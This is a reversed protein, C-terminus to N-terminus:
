KVPFDFYTDPYPEDRLTFHWWEAEYPAFGAFLMHMRLLMRNARADDSIDRSAAHSVPGFFDWNSGMDLEAVTGDDLRRVITLDLTSGRSHGSRSAIYGDPVLRDKSIDPYYRAKGATDEPDEIWRMFHDVARQPRYGDFVKLTMGEQKLRSQVKQLAIAAKVSLFVRGAEYGDIPHGVFNDYGAYRAEIVIGPIFAGLDVFGDPMGGDDANAISAVTVAMVLGYLWAKM